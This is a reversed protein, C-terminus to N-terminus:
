GDIWRRFSLCRTYGPGSPDMPGRSDMLGFPDAVSWGSEEPPDPEDGVAFRSAAGADYRCEVGGGNPVQWDFFGKEPEGLVTMVAMITGGHVVFVAADEAGGSKTDNREEPCPVADKPPSFEGDSVAAGAKEMGSLIDLFAKVSRRRFAEPDEGGPFSGTGGCDVWARYEPDDKMEEYNRYEFTGFDCERLDHVVHQKVGPFLTEATQRCRKMPSVFLTYSSDKLSAACRAPDDDLWVEDAAPRVPNDAERTSVKDNESSEPCQLAAQPYWGHRRNILLERIGEESLEEDTRGVYRKELNGKTKGHRILYVIM